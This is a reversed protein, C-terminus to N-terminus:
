RQVRFLTDVVNRVYREDSLGDTCEPPFASVERFHDALEAFLTVRDSANLRDRRLLAKLAIGAEAPSTRQRLRAELHPYRRFSNFKEEGLQDLDPPSLKRSRVVITNAALDGLRQAHQSALMAAGGVLYCLPLKDVVRLLNRMVVQSFRLHLGNIDMVRLGVVRKGITQGRWAWELAMCYGIDVLFYAIIQLAMAMDTSVVALVSILGAVTSFIAIFCLLDIFWALFRSAPGALQLSFAVGEPTHLRRTFPERRDMM